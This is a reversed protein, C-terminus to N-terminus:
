DHRMVGCVTRRLGIDALMYDSMARVRMRALRAQRADRLKGWVRALEAMPGRQGVARPAEIAVGDQRIIRANGGLASVVATVPREFVFEEGAGLVIDRPDGDQTVWVNGELVAIRRGYGDKLRLPQGSHLFTSGAIQSLDM